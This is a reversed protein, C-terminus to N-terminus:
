GAAFQVIQVTIPGGNDGTIPQRAKGHGREIIAMAASVSAKANDSRMWDALRQMAEPSLTRALAEIEIIEPTKRPRGKPNGTKGKPFTGPRAM